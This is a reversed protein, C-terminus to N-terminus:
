KRRQPGSAKDDTKEDTDSEATPQPDDGETDVVFVVAGINRGATYDQDEPPAVALFGKVKEGDEREFSASDLKHM